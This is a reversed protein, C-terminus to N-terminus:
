PDDWSARLSSLDRDLMAELADVDPAFAEVLMAKAEPDLPPKDGHALLLREAIWRKAAEPLLRDAVRGLLDNTRIAETLRNYPVGTMPNHRTATDVREFPAADVDLFAAVEDLVEDPRDALDATLVVLVRDDGFRDRYRRLADHYLGRHVLDFPREPPDPGAREARLTEVMSRDHSGAVVDALYQSHARRVPDRLPVVFRADPVRDFILDPVDPHHLYLPTAEGRYAADAGSRFRRRYAAPDPDRGEALGTFFHLEKDTAMFVDPHQDLYRHLSTTAAKPPGPIFLNPWPDDPVPRGGRDAAM